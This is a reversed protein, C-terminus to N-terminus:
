DMMRVRRRVFVDNRPSEASRPVGVPQPTIAHRHPVGLVVYMNTAHGRQSCVARYEPAVLSSVVDLHALQALWM